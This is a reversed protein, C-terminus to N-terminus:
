WPQEAHSGEPIGSFDVTVVNGTMFAGPFSEKITMEAMIGDGSTGRTRVTQPKASAVVGVKIDGIVM